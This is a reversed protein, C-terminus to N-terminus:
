ETAQLRGVTAEETAEKMAEETAPVNAAQVTSQLEALPLRCVSSVPSILPEPQWVVPRSGQAAAQPVSSARLDDVSQSSGRATRQRAPAVKALVITAESQSEEEPSAAVEQPLVRKAGEEVDDDEVSQQLAELAAMHDAVSAPLVVAAADISDCFSRWQQRFAEGPAGGFAEALLQAVERRQGDKGSAEGCLAGVRQELARRGRSMAAMRSRLRSCEHRLEQLEQLEELDLQAKSSPVQLRLGDSEPQAAATRRVAVEERLQCCELRMEALESAALHKRLVAAAEEELSGPQGATLRKRLGACQLHLLAEEEEREIVQDRQQQSQVAAIWEARLTAERAACERLESSGKAAAGLEQLLRMAAPVTGDAGAAFPPATSCSSAASSAMMLEERLEACEARMAM